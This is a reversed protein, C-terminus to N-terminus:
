RRKPDRVTLSRAPPLRLMEIERDAEGAGAGNSTTDPELAWSQWSSTSSETHPTPPNFTSVVRVDRPLSRVSAHTPRFSSRSHHRAGPGRSQATSAPSPSVSGPSFLLASDARVLRRTSFTASQPVVSTLAAQNSLVPPLRDGVTLSLNRLVVAPPITSSPPVISSRPSRVGSDFPVLTTTKRRLSQARVPFLRSLATNVIGGSVSRAIELSRVRSPCM